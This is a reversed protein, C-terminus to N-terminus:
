LCALISMTSSEYIEKNKETFSKIAGKSTQMQKWNKLRDRWTFEQSGGIKSEINEM